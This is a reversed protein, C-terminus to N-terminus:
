LNDASKYINPFCSQMFLEQIDFDNIVHNFDIEKSNILNATIADTTSTALETSGDTKSFSSNIFNMILKSDNDSIVKWSAKRSEALEGVEIRISCENIQFNIQLCQDGLPLCHINKVNLNFNFLESLLYLDHPLWDLPLPITSGHSPGGRIIDIRNIGQMDRQMFTRWIESYNWVRSLRLNNLSYLRSERISKFGRQTLAIPKELIVTANTSDLLTVILHQINPRVCIWFHSYQFQQLLQPNVLIQRASLLSVQFDKANQSVARRVKEGWAGQGIILLHYNSFTLRTTRELGILSDVLEM